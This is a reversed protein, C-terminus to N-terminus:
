QRSVVHWRDVNREDRTEDQPRLLVPNGAFPRNNRTHRLCYRDEEQQVQAVRGEYYRATRAVYVAVVDGRQLRERKVVMARLKEDVTADDDAQQQVRVLLEQVDQTFAADEADWVAMQAAFRARGERREADRAQLRHQWDNFAM